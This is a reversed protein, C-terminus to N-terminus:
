KYKDKAKGNVDDDDRYRVGTPAPHREVGSKYPIPYSFARLKNRIGVREVMKRREQVWDFMGLSSVLLNNQIFKIRRRLELIVKIFKCASRDGNQQVGGKVNLQLSVFM